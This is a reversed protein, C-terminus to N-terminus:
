DHVPALTRGSHGDVGAASRPVAGPVRWNHKRSLIFRKDDTGTEVVFIFQQFVYEM